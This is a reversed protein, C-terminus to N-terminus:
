LPRPDDDSLEDEPGASQGRPSELGASETHAHIAAKRHMAEARADETAYRLHRQGAEGGFGVRWVAYAMYNFCLSMVAAIHLAGIGAALGVGIAIFFFHADAYFRLKSRFQIGAFIGALSFALPLSDQVIVVVGSVAIPLILLAEIMSQDLFIRRRTGMYIWSIPIMLLAAGVISVFLAIATEAQRAQFEPSSAAAILEAADVPQGRAQWSYLYAAVDPFLLTLLWVATILLAYYATLQVLLAKRPRLLIDALSM